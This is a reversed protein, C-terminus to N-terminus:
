HKQFIEKMCDDNLHVGDRDLHSFYTWFGRHRWMSINDKNGTTLKQRILVNTDVVKSNYVDVVKNPDRWLM